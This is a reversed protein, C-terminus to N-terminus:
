RAPGARLGLDALVDGLVGALRDAWAIADAPDAILDQRVEILANPLGRAMAHTDVTYGYGRRGSYPQNDGICLNSDRSLRQMLLRPMRDDEDYLVGVHWPRPGGRFDPTFSHLSVFAPAIGRAAFGALASDIAQHYPHCFTRARLRQDTETLSRNGPIVTGDSVVCISTPDDVSRNPDIVLRSYNNMICPADLREALHRALPVIGIDYAIHRSLAADDLGLRDLAAPIARGAHDAVLLLPARGEPNVHTIVPPDHPGLLPGPLYTAAPTDGFTPADM